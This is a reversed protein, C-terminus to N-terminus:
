WTEIALTRFRLIKIIQLAFFLSLLSCILAKLAGGDLFTEISAKYLRASAPLTMRHRRFFFFDAIRKALDCGKRRGNTEQKRNKFKGLRSKRAPWRDAWSPLCAMYHRYFLRPM